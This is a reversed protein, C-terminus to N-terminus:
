SKATRNTMGFGAKTNSLLKGGLFKAFDISDSRILHIGDNTRWERPPPPPLWEFSEPPFLQKSLARVQKRRLTDDVRSEMPIDFLVLRAKSNNKIDAIQSKILAAEKKITETEKESLPQSEADVAMQIGRQSLEPTLFRGERKDLEEKSINKDQKGRNKLYYIFVSVPRYEERMIPLYRRVWYFVPHYLSNLLESDLKRSITYNIEALIIPPQVPSRKIIELGTQTAGGALAISQVGEGIDKANINAALSSGVMVMKLDSNNQYVYRQAKVINTQNLSAGDAAPLVRGSVLAQYCSMILLFVLLPRLISRVPFKVFM